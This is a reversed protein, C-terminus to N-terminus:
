REIILKEIQKKGDANLIVNYSGSPLSKTDFSFSFEGELNQHKCVEFLEKGNIDSITISFDQVLASLNGSITCTSSAPNPYLLTNKFSIESISSNRNGLLIDGHATYLLVRTPSIQCANTIRDHENLFNNPLTELQWTYGGDTTFHIPLTNKSTNETSSLHHKLLGTLSDTAFSLIHKGWSDYGRISDNLINWTQGGDKTRFVTLYKEYIQKEENNVRGEGVLWGNNSDIFDVNIFNTPYIGYDFDYGKGIPLTIYNWENNSFKYFAWYDDQSAYQSNRKFVLADIENNKKLFLSSIYSFNNLDLDLTDWTKGYNKTKIIVQKNEPDAQGLNNYTTIGCIYQENVSYKGFNVKPCNELPIYKHEDTLNSIFVGEHVPLILKNESVLYTKNTISLFQINFDKNKKESFAESYLLNWTAGADRSIFITFIHRDRTIGLLLVTNGKVYIYSAPYFVFKDYDSDPILDADYLDSAKVIDTSNGVKSWTYINEADVEQISTLSFVVILLLIIKNM